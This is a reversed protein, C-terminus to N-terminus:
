QLDRVAQEIEDAFCNEGSLDLQPLEEPIIRVSVGLEDVIVAAYRIAADKQLTRRVTGDSSVVAYQPDWVQEMPAEGNIDDELTVYGDLKRQLEIAKEQIEDEFCNEADLDLEPLVEPIIRCSGGQNVWTAAYSIALSSKWMRLVRGKEDVIAYLPTDVQKMRAPGRDKAITMLM